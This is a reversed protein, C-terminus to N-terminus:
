SPGRTQILKWHDPSVGTAIKFARSFASVNKYGLIDSLDSLYIDSSRLYHKAVELRVDALIERFSTGEQQLRRQLARPHKGMIQAIGEINCTRTGLSRRVEHHIRETLKLNDLEKNLLGQLHLEVIKLLEPDSNNLRVDLYEEPFAYGDFDQDYYVPVGFFRSLVEADAPQSHSFYVASLAERGGSIVSSAKVMLTVALLHLQKQVGPFDVRHRRKLFAFGDETNLEWRSEQSYVQSYKMGVQLFERVSVCLKPLQAMAGFRFPPQHRAVYFGFLPCRNQSAVLELFNVVQHYPLFGKPATLVEPAICSSRLADSLDIGLEHAADKAGLLIEANVLLPNDFDYARLM